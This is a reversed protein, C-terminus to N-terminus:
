EGVLLTPDVSGAFAAQYEFDPYRELIVKLLQLTVARVPVVNAVLRTGKRGADKLDAETTPYGNETLWEAIVSKTSGEISVGWRGKDLARLFSRRLLGVSGERTVNIGPKADTAEHSEYWDMWSEFDQVTKLVNGDKVDEDKTGKRWGDFLSRAYQMDAECGWPATDFAVHPVGNVMRTTVTGEVPRRKFDFELNLRISKTIEVLDSEKLWQERMSILHKMPHKQKPYREMFLKVMYENQEAKTLAKGARKREPRIGTKALVFRKNLDPEDEIAAPLGTLQGRTKMAIIQRCQHKRVLMPEKDTVLNCLAQYRSALPGSLNLEDMTANTLFGDTTASIVIRDEPVSAMVEALVARVFGTTHAAIYPNTVMSERVKKSGLSHSDFVTKEKLSQATKGYLSNGIEKALADALSGAEHKAREHRVWEVFSQFVRAKGTKWPVIVGHTIKIEAGMNLAAEIEPATCYSEGRLPFQLGYQETRVPLCPFRTGDPFDFSVHALGMVHGCFDKVNKTCYCNKYDLPYLDVLGTTYAGALDYDFYRGVPTPGFVYCENRGGHFADTAFQSHFRRSVTEVRHKRKKVKQKKDDWIQSEVYKIGFVEDFCDPKDFLSRFLSVACSGITLPLKKLNLVDRAFEHMRLGYKVAIEADRIAYRQFFEKDGELLEDMRTICYPAPISLKDVGIMEGVADLGKRGPTLLLTDVFSVYTQIKHGSQKRLVIPKTSVKGKSRPEHQIGVGRGMNTLTGRLSDVDHKYKWFSQFSAVDARLFHGYVFTVRPWSDIVGQKLAEHLVYGIFKEFSWRHKYASSEPYIVGKLVFAKGVLYFSYCLVINGDEAGNQVYESDIGIHVPEGTATVVKDPKAYAEALEARILERIDFVEERTAAFMPLSPDKEPEIREKFIREDHKKIVM